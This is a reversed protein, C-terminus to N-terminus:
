LHFSCFNFFACNFHRSLLFFFSTKFHRYCAVNKRKIFINLVTSMAAEERILASETHTYETHTACGVMFAVCRIGLVAVLLFLFGFSSLFNYFYYYFFFLFHESSEM